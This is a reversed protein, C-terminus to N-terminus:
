MLAWHNSLRIISVQYGSIYYGDLRQHTSADHSADDLAGLVDSCDVIHHAVGLIDRQWSSLQMLVTSCPLPGM